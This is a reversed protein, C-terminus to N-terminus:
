SHRAHGNTHIAYFHAKLKVHQLLRSFGGEYRLFVTSIHTRLSLMMKASSIGAPIWVVDYITVAVHEFSLQIIKHAARGLHTSESGRWQRGFMRDIWPQSCLSLCKQRVGSRCGLPDLHLIAFFDFLIRM